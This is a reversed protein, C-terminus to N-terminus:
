GVARKMHAFEARLWTKTEHPIANWHTGSLAGELAYALVVSVNYGKARLRRCTEIPGFRRVQEITMIGCARLWANSKPGLNLASELPRRGVGRGIKIPKIRSQRPKAPM